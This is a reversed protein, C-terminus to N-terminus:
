LLGVPSIDSEPYCASLSMGEELRNTNICTKVVAIVTHFPFLKLSSLFCQNLFHQISYTTMTLTNM